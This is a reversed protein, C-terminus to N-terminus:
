ENTLCENSLNKNLVYKGDALCEEAPFIPNFLFSDYGLPVGM